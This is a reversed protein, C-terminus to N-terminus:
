IHERRYERLLQVVRNRAVSSWCGIEQNQTLLIVKKDLVSGTKRHNCIVSYPSWHMTIPVNLESFMLSIM